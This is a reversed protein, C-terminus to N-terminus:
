ADKHQIANVAHIYQFFSLCIRFANKLMIKRVEQKSGPQLIQCNKVKFESEVHVVLDLVPNQPRFESFSTWLQPFKNNM